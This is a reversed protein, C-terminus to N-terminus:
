LGASVDAVCTVCGISTISTAYCNYRVLFDPRLPVDFDSRQSSRPLSVPGATAAPSRRQILAPPRRRLGNGGQGAVAMVPLM